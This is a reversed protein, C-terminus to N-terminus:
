GHDHHEAPHIAGIAILEAESVGKQILLLRMMANQSRLLTNTERQVDLLRHTEDYLKQWKEAEGQLKDILSSTAEHGANVPAKAKLYDYGLKLAVASLGGGAFIELISDTM